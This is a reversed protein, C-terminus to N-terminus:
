FMASFISVIMILSLAASLSACEKRRKLFIKKANMLRDKQKNENVTPFMCPTSTFMDAKGVFHGTM